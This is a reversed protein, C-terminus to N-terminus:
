KYKTMMRNLYSLKVAPKEEIGLLLSLVHRVEKAGGRCFMGACSACYTCFAGGSEAIIKETFSSAMEPEKAIASGGLGCCQASTLLQPRSGLLACIQEYWVPEARDPCAPFIKLAEQKRVSVGLTMLKEYISTVRLAIRDKLFDYCNPCMTVIERVGAASLEAEIRATIRKEDERCGLESIPKGCCDYVTEIGYEERFLRSVFRNTKPFLSPFNCGPFLVTGASVHRYNRFRYDRKEALMFAYTKEAYHPDEAAVQDERIAEALARGSIKAPCVEKCADCLFCHYALDVFSSVDSTEM